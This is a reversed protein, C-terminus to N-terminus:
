KVVPPKPPEGDNQICSALDFFFFALLHEGPKLPTNCGGPYTTDVVDPPNQILCRARRSGAQNERPFPARRM